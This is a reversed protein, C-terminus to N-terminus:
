PAGPNDRGEWPYKLQIELARVAVPRAFRPVSLSLRNVGAALSSAPIIKECRLWGAYRYRVDSQAAVVQGRYGPDALDPLRPSALGLTRHNIEVSPPEAVDANLVEFSVVALLPARDLQFDLVIPEEPPLRTAPALLAARVRGFLYSDDPGVVTDPMKGFPDIFEFARAFDVTTKAETHTATSLFAGHIDSGDGPIAIELYDIEKTPILVDASNTLGLGAGLPGSQYNLAGTETWGTIRPAAQPRDEFYLRLQVEPNLAGMRRLRLRFITSVPEGPQPRPHESAVSELWIPLALRPANPKAMAHFDLWVTFPIPQRRLEQARAPVLEM